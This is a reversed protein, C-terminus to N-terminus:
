LTITEADNWNESQLEAFYMCRDVIRCPYIRPKILHKSPICATKLGILKHHNYLM